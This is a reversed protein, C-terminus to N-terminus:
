NRDVLFFTLTVDTGEGLQMQISIQGQHMEVIKKVAVLGSGAIGESNAGRFFSTYIYPLDEQAIGIEFDTVRVGFRGGERFVTVELKRIYGGFKLANSILNLFCTQILFRDWGVRLDYGVESRYILKDQLGNKNITDEVSERVSVNVKKLVPTNEVFRKYDRSQTVIRHLNDLEQEIKEVIDVLSHYPIEFLRRGEGFNIVSHQTGRQQNDWAVERIFYSKSKWSLSYDFGRGSDSQLNKGEGAFLSTM